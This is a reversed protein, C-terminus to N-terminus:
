GAAAMEVHGEYVRRAPGRLLVHAEPGSLTATVALAGGPLTVEIRGEALGQGRLAVVAVACAGTGCAQTWGSGREHVRVRVHAGDSSVEAFEVNVGDPWLDTRAEAERVVALQEAEPVSAVVVAHPNGVRVAVVVLRRGSAQLEIDEREIRVVGMDVEVEASQAGDAARITVHRPGADTGITFTQGVSARGHLLQHLAVCRAGNGCMTARSGDANFIALSGDAGRELTLALVGDAGIGRHRDCLLKAQAGTMGVAADGELLVFDNGLGEYKAFPRVM